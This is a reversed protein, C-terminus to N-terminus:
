FQRREWSSFLLLSRLGHGCPLSRRQTRRLSAPSRERRGQWLADHDVIREGHAFSRQESQVHREQRQEVHHRPQLAALQYADRGPPVGM